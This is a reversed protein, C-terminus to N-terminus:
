NSGETVGIARDPEDFDCDLFTENKILDPKKIESNPLIQISEITTGPLTKSQRKHSYIMNPPATSNGGFTKLKEMTSNKSLTNLIEKNNNKDFIPINKM